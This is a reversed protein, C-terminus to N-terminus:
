GTAALVCVAQVTCLTFQRSCCHHHIHNELQVHSIGPWGVFKSSLISVLVPRLPVCVYVIATCPQRCTVGNMAILVM